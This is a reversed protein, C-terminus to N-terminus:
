AGIRARGAELLIEQFAMQRTASRQSTCTSIRCSDSKFLLSPIGSMSVSHLIKLYETSTYEEQWGHRMAFDEDDDSIAKSTGLRHGSDSKARKLTPKPREVDSLYDSPLRSTTKSIVTGEETSSSTPRAALSRNKEVTSFSRQHPLSPIPSKDRPPIHRELEPGFAVRASKGQNKRPEGNAYVTEQSSPKSGDM